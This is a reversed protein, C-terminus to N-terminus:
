AREPEDSLVERVPRAVGDAFDYYTMRALRPAYAHISVAPEDDDNRVDHLEGPLVPVVAGPRRRHTHLRGAVPRIESLQGSVVTFAAESNGHDHLETGQSTTWTLLWVDVPEAVPIRAWFRETVGFEVLPLWGARAAVVRRLLAHLAPDPARVATRARSPSSLTM